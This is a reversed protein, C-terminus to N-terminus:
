RQSDYVYVRTKYYFHAVERWGKERLVHAYVPNCYFLYLPRPREELTEMIREVVRKLIEADFPNYLYFVDYDGYRDFAAADGHYVVTKGKKCVKKLNRGAIETLNRDYEIGSVRDFNQRTFNYLMFGKGCGIDIIRHNRGEDLHEAIYRNLYFLSAWPTAYYFYRGDRGVSEDIYSFDTGHVADWFHMTFNSIDYTFTYLKNWIDRIM